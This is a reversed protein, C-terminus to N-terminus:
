IRVKKKKVTIQKFDLSIQFKTPMVVCNFGYKMSKKLFLRDKGVHVIRTIAM